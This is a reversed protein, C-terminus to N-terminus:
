SIFVAVTSVLTSIEYEHGFFIISSITLFLFTVIVATNRLMLCIENQIPLVRDSVFWFLKAPITRQESSRTTQLEQQWYKLIFGKVEIYGKQLNAYCFYINTTVVVFFAVYPTVIDVNLVLGMITFGFTGSFLNCLLSLPVFFGFFLLVIYPITFLYFILKVLLTCKMPQRNLFLDKPRLFLVAMLCTLILLTLILISYTVKEPDPIKLIYENFYKQKLLFYLGLKIYFGFPLVFFLLFMLKLNFSLTLNPLRQFHELLFVSCTIPSRDDVLIEETDFSRLREEEGNQVELLENNENNSEKDCEYQLDIIDEPLMLLMAPSYFMVVVSLLFLFTNIVKFSMRAEVSLDCNISSANLRCCHYVMSDESNHVNEDIMAVCVVGNNGSKSTVNSLLARGVVLNQCTSNLGALCGSPEDRLPVTMSGVQYNLLGLSLIDFDYPLSLMPENNSRAWVWRDPQFEDQLELPNYSINGVNKLKNMKLNLYIMRVGEESAKPKFESAISEGVPLVKCRVISCNKGCNQENAAGSVLSLSTAIFSLHILAM